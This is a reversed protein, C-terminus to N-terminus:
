EAPRTTLQKRIAALHENISVLTFIMGTAVVGLLFGVLAGIFQAAEGHIGLMYGWGGLAFWGFVVFGILVLWLFAELLTVIMQKM